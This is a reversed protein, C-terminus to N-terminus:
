LAFTGKKITSEINANWNLKDDLIIGLCKVQNVLKIPTNKIKPISLGPLKKKKTFVIM